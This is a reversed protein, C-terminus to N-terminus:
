LNQLDHNLSVVVLRLWVKWRLSLHLLLTTACSRELLYGSFVVLAVM